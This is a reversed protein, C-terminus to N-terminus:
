SQFDHCQNVKKESLQNTNSPCPIGGIFFVSTVKYKVLTQLYTDRLSTSNRERWIRTKPM